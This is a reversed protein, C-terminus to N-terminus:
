GQMSVGFLLVRLTYYVLRACDLFPKYSQAAPLCWSAAAVVVRECFVRACVNACIKCM